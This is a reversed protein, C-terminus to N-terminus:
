KCGSPDSLVWRWHGDIVFVHFTAKATDKRGALSATYEVTVATSAARTSTGPIAVDESYTELVKVASVNPVTKKTACTIYADRSVLAQQAPHLSDWEPGWQGKDVYGLLKTVYDGASQGGASPGSDDGGCGAFAALLTFIAALSLLHRAPRCAPLPPRARM